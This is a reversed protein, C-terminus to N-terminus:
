KEEEPLDASDDTDNFNDFMVDGKNFDYIDLNGYVKQVEEEIEEKMPMLKEVSFGTMMAVEEINIKGMLMKRAMDMKAQDTRNM